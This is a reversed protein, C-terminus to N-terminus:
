SYRLRNLPEALCRSAPMHGQTCAAAADVCADFVDAMDIRREAMAKLVARIYFGIVAVAYDTKGTIQNAILEVLDFEAEEHTIRGTSFERLTAGVSREILGPHTQM